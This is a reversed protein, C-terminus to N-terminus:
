NIKNMPNWLHTPDHSVQRQFFFFINNSLLVYIILFHHILSLAVKILLVHLPFFFFSAKFVSSISFDCFSSVLFKVLKDNIVILAVMIINESKWLGSLVFHLCYFPYHYKICTVLLLRSQGYM